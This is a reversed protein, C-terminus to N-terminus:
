APANASRIVDEYSSETETVTAEALIADVAQEELALAEVQQRQEPTNKYYERVQEPEEYTSAVDEILSDVKEESPELDFKAIVENMLLGIKVRRDAQDKFMEAPLMSADIQQGGGFQQVAQERLRNIEENALASPVEIDNANVLGEVVQNKVFNKEARSLEREMNKKIEVKFEAENEVKVGFKSFFEENLEPLEAAKVENVKIKFQAPKSQLDEKQYDAPFTVDVTLEDGAKAGVVGEEFGPIMAGSGLTLNHGQAAGGEFAEGDIFGEFDIIAQDGDEAASEKTTWTAQQKQLNEVMNAVDEDNVTAAKKEVELKALDALEVEPYVEFTATYEFDKGEENVKPEWATPYGAMKVSEKTVAEFFTRQMVQQAAEARAEGGFMKKAIAPTMKGKRFGNVKRVKAISKLANNVEVEVTEAPVVVTMQRELGSTTEISVQM